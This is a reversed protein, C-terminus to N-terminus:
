THHIYTGSQLLPPLCRDDRPPGTRAVRHNENQPVISCHWAFRLLIICICKACIPQGVRPQPAAHYHNRIPIFFRMPPPDRGM